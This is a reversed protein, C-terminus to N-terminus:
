LRKTFSVFFSRGVASVPYAAEALFPREDTVNNVGGRLTFSDSFDYAASIDHSWFSDDRNPEAFGAPSEAEVGQFYQEDQWFSQWTLSLAGRTWTVSSSLALEPNQAEGLDSDLASPDNPSTFFELKDVYTGSLRFRFRGFDTEPSVYRADFDYGQVEFRQYNVPAVTFDSFGLFTPSGVTRNREFLACFANPFESPPADYCGAVIDDAPVTAIADEIKYNFYDVTLTFGDVFRPQLVIGVTISDSTEETLNPNGQQSGTVRATLPDTFGQPIGDARCNAERNDPNPGQRIQDAACVDIPRFTAPTVPLVVNNLSPARIAKNFTGRLSVDPIPAYFLGAKWTNVSGVADLAGGYRSTRVAGDITLAHAGQVDKLVPVVVEAFGETVKMSGGTPQVGSEFFFGAEQFDSVSFDSKERRYEAGVAIGIAGAPLEFWASTDGTLTASAVTQTLKSTQVDPINVFNVADASPAGFGFLNLPRCTGDTPSFTNYQFDFGPFPSTGPVATPFLSSRCVPQGTAPNEFADVAAYFRDELRTKENTEDEEVRGYNVAVEYKWSDSVDGEIGAVVRLTDRSAVRRNVGFDTNDRSILFQGDASDLGPNADYFSRIATRLATPIFPNDLRIPITDNFSNVNNVDRADIRVFKTELFPRARDSLEYYANFNVNVRQIDAVIEEDDLFVAIGDGGFANAFASIQGDRFPRVAGSNRDVVWCGYGTNYGNFTQDCDDVGNRDLDADVFDAVLDGDADFGILGLASSISFNRGPLFARPAAALAEQVRAPNLAARRTANLTAIRAGIVGGAATYAPTVDEAQVRLRPNADDDLRQNGRLYDRDGYSIPDSKSFEASFLFNGRDNSGFTNGYLVSGYLRGADGEGSLDTQAEFELGETKRKLVYNVVGSVADSGYIASAGGTLVDVREILNSPISSVDVISTGASGAVHRRGNVLVLTRTAGLGRLELQSGGFIGGARTSALDATESGFLAPTYRIVDEADTQGVARLDEVGVSAIPAPSELEPRAIRSGTVIVEELNDAAASDQEQAYASQGSIALAVAVPVTVALSGHSLCARLLSAQRALAQTIKMIYGGAFLQANLGRSLERTAFFIRLEGPVPLRGLSINRIRWTNPQAFGPYSPTSQV